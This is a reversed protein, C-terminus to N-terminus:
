LTGRWVVSGERWTGGVLIGKKDAHPFQVRWDRFKDNTVVRLHHDSAFALIAEDAVVGRSVVCVHWAPVGILWAIKSEDYYHDDLKYGVNADFFVIPTYGKQELARLVRSLVKASPDEAWHMVNSGDVVIANAPPGEQKPAVPKGRRLLLLIFFGLLAPLLLLLDSIIM